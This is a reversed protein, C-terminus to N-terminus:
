SPHNIHEQNDRKHRHDAVHEPVVQADPPPCPLELAARMLVVPGLFPNRRPCLCLVLSPQVVVLMSAPRAAFSPSHCVGFLDDDHHQNHRRRHPPQHVRCPKRSQPLPSHLSAAGYSCSPQRSRAPPPPPPTRRISPTTHRMSQRAAASPEPYPFADPSLLFPHPGRLLPHALHCCACRSFYRCRVLCRRSARERHLHLPLRRRIRSRLVLRERNGIPRSHIDRRHQALNRQVRHRRIALRRRRHAIVRVA